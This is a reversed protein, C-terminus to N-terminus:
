SKAPPPPPIRKVPKAQVGARGADVLRGALALMDRCIARDVIRPDDYSLTNRGSSARRVLGKESNSMDAFVCCLFDVVKGHTEGELRSGAVAAIGKATKHMAEWGLLFAAAPDSDLIMRASELHAGAAAFWADGPIASGPKAKGPFHEELCPKINRKM